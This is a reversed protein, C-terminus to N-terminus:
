SVWFICFIRLRWHSAVWSLRAVKLLSDFNGILEVEEQSRGSPLITKNSMARALEKFAEQQKHSCFHLRFGRSSGVFFSLGLFLILIILLINFTSKQAPTLVGKAKYILVIALVLVAFVITVTWLFLQKLFTRHALFWPRILSSTEEIIVDNTTFRADSGDNATSDLHFDDSRPTSARLLNMQMEDNAAM